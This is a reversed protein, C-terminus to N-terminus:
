LQIFAPRVACLSYGRRRLEDALAKDPIVALMLQIDAPCLPSQEAPITPENGPAAVVPEETHHSKTRVKRGRRSRPTTRPINLVEEASMCTVESSEVLKALEVAPAEDGDPVAQCHTNIYYIRGERDKIYSHVRIANGDKDHFKTEVGSELKEKSM